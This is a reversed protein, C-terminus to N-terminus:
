NDRGTPPTGHLRRPPRRFFRIRCLELHEVIAEAVPRLPHDDGYVRKRPWRPRAKRLAQEIDFVLEHRPLPTNDETM